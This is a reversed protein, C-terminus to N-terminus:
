REAIEAAKLFQDCKRRPYSEDTEGIKNAVQQWTLGNVYYLTFMQRIRSDPVTDIFDNLKEYEDVCRNKRREIAQRIRKSKKIDKEPLGKISVSHLTYPFSASSASVSDSVLDHNINQLEEELIKIENKLDRLQFLETKTM